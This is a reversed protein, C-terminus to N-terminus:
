CVTQGRSSVAPVQADAWCTGPIWTGHTRPAGSSRNGRRGRVITVRAGDHYDLFTSQSISCQTSRPVNSYMGSRMQVTIIPMSWFCAEGIERSGGGIAMVLEMKQPEKAEASGFSGDGLPSLLLGDLLRGAGAARGGMVLDLDLDHALALDYGGSVDRVRSVAHQQQHQVPVRRVGSM